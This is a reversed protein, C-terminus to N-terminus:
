SLFHNASTGTYSLLRSPIQVEYALAMRWVEGRSLLTSLQFPFNHKTKRTKPLCLCGSPACFLCVWCDVETIFISLRKLHSGRPPHCGTFMFSSTCRVLCSRMLSLACQWAHRHRVCVWHASRGATFLWDVADALGQVRQAVRQLSRPVAEKHFGYASELSGNDNIPASMSSGGGLYQEIVPRRMGKESIGVPRRLTFLVQAQGPTHDGAFLPLLTIESLALPGEVYLLYPAVSSLGQPAAWVLSSSPLSALNLPCPPLWSLWYDPPPPVCCLLLSGM